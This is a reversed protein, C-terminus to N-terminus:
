RGSGPWRRARGPGGSSAISRRGRAACRSSTASWASRSTTRSARQPRARADAPGLSSCSRTSRRAVLSAERLGIAHQPQGDRMVQARTSIRRISPRRAHSVACTGSCGSSPSPRPSRGGSARKSASFSGGRRSPRRTRHREREIAALTERFRQVLWRFFGRDHEPTEGSPDEEPIECSLKVPGAGVPILFVDM